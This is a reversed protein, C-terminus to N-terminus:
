SGSIQFVRIAFDFFLKAGCQPCEWPSNEPYITLIEQWAPFKAGCICKTLPLAEADNAQFEVRDTVDTHESM